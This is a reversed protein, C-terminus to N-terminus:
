DIENNTKWTKHLDLVISANWRNNWTECWTMNLITM